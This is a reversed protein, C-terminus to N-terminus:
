ANTTDVINEATLDQMSFEMERGGLGWNERWAEYDNRNVPTVSSMDYEAGKMIYFVIGEQEADVEEPYPNGDYDEVRYEKEWADVTFICDYIDTEHDYRYVMYPWFDGMPAMGHNHSAGEELLGNEYFTVMPFGAYEEWVSDTDEEYDYITERMGAMSSTTYCIILEKKGDQDIDFVAFKNDSLPYFGDYGCSTGDPYVDNELIDTLVTKYKEIRAKESDESSETAAIAPSQEKPKEAQASDEESLEGSETEEATIPEEERAPIDEAEVIQIESSEENGCGTMMTLALACAAMVIKKKRVVNKQRM